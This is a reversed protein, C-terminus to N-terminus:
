ALCIEEWVQGGAAAVEGDMVGQVYARGIVSFVDGGAAQRRLVMPFPCQTIIWVEDGPAGSKPGMGLYGADTLFIQQSWAVANARHAFIEPAPEPSSLLHHGAPSLLIKKIRATTSTEDSGEALQQAYELAKPTAGAKAVLSAVWNVFSDGVFAPAPYDGIEHYNEYLDWIMTRWLVDARDPGAPLTSRGALRLLGLVDALRDGHDATQTERLVGLRTGHAFLLRRGDELRFPRPEPGCAIFPSRHEMSFNPAKHFDPVWSPLDRLARFSPDSVHAVIGLYGSSEVVAAAAATLVMAPTTAPAYDPALDRLPPLGLRAATDKVLGLLSYVRDRPDTWQFDRAMRMLHVLVHAGSALEYRGTCLGVVLLQQANSKACAAQMLGIRYVNRGFPLVALAQTPANPADPAAAAATPPDGRPLLLPAFFDKRLREPLFIRAGAVLAPWPVTEPGWHAVARRALAVEQIVWGRSFWRREYFALYDRWLDDSAAAAIAAPGAEAQAPFAAEDIAAVTRVLALVEGTAPTEKGLWITVAVARRYIEDMMAVHTRRELLDDQNICIADIWFYAGPYSATMQLLADYLNPTVDHREGDLIIPAPAVLSASNTGTESDDAPGWTYSLAYYDPETGFSFQVVNLHLHDATDSGTVATAGHQTNCPASPSAATIHLLRISDGDLSRPYSYRRPRMPPRTQQKDADEQQSM